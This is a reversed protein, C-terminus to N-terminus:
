SQGSTAWWEGDKKEFVIKLNNEAFWDRIFHDEAALQGSIILQGGKKLLHLIESRMPWIESRIMNCVIIDFYHNVSFANLEGLIGNPKPLKNQAFNEILCPSTVPDIETTFIEAPSIKQAYMALIGTGTGIDLLKYSQSPLVNEMIQACLRTSEHSGTGFAMKAEIVLDVVGEQKETQVWPPLVRLKESVVIPEQQDRWWANWDQNAEQGHTWTLDPFANQVGLIFSEDEFCVRFHTILPDTSDLEEVTPAGLEFLQWSVLEFDPTSCSSQIWYYSDNM